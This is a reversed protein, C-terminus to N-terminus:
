TQSFKYNEKSLFVSSYFYDKFQNTLVHNKTQVLVDHKSYHEDVEM